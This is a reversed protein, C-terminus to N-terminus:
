NSTIGRTDNPWVKNIIDLARDIDSMSHASSVQIRLRATGEPVVPFGFGVVYLGEDLLRQALSIATSTEGVVVPIIGSNGEIPTIGMEVLRRRFYEVKGRLDSVIGPNDDLVKLAMAAARCSSAPIANSFIHPRSFQILTDIVTASGAVFGGSIGSLTKGLTGTYIDIENMIGYHEGIGRGTEGLVGLGHADDIVLTADYKKALSCLEDLKALDGEMSFVGDSIIFRCQADPHRSLKEELDAMNSHKYIERTVERHCLRVGDIISAHNLEDSFIADGPQTLAPFVGNNTAFASSYCVASEVKLFAALSTELDHHATTTGCIFRASATGAGFEEIGAHAAKVVEPHNALGLYDNACFILTDGLGEIPTEAGAAGSLLKLTKYRGEAKLTDIAKICRDNFKTSSM